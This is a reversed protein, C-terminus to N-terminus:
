GNDMAQVLPRAVASPVISGAGATSVHVVQIAIVTAMERAVTRVTQPSRAWQLRFSAAISAMM